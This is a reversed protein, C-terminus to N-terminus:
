VKLNGITESIIRRLNKEKEWINIVRRKESRRVELQDRSSNGIVRKHIPIGYM